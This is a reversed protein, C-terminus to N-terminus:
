QKPLFSLYKTEKAVAVGAAVEATKIEEVKKVAEEVAPSYKYSIRTKASFTGRDTPLTGVNQKELEALILASKEKLEAELTAITTKINCYRLLEDAITRPKNPKPKM